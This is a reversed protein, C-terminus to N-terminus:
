RRCRRRARAARAACPGACMVCRVLLIGHQDAPVALRREQDLALPADEDVGEAAADRAEGLAAQAEGIRRDRAHLGIEQQDRVLVAIVVAGLDHAAGRRHQARGGPRVVRWQALDDGDGGLVIVDRARLATRVGDKAERQVSQAETVEAVEALRRQPRLFWDDVIVIAAVPLLLVSLVWIIQEFV